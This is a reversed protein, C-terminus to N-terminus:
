KWKCQISLFTHATSTGVGNDVTVSYNGEDSPGLSYITVTLNNGEIQVSHRHGPPVSSTGFSVQVNTNNISPNVDENLMFTLTANDGVLGCILMAEVVLTPPVTFSCM